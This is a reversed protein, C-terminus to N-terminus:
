QHPMHTFQLQPAFAAAGPPAANLPPVAFAGATMMMAAAAAANPNMAAAPHHVQTHPVNTPPLAFGFAAAAPNQMAAFPTTAFMKREWDVKQELSHPGFAHKYVDSVSRPSVDARLLSKFGASPPAEMPIGGGSISVGGAAHANPMTNMMTPAIAVPVVGMPGAHQPTMQFTPQAMMAGAPHMPHQPQQQSQGPHHHHHQQQMHQPALPQQPVFPGLHQPQQQPVIATPPLGMQAGVSVPMAQVTTPSTSSPSTSAGGRSGLSDFIEQGKRQGPAVWASANMFSRMDKKASTAGSTAAGPSTGSVGSAAASQTTGGASVGAAMTMATATSTTVNATMVNGSVATGILESATSPPGGEKRQLKVKEDLETSSKRLKATDESRNAPNPVAAAGNKSPDLSYPQFSKKPEAGSALNLGSLRELSARGQKPSSSQPQTTTTGTAPPTATDSRKNAIAIGPPTGNNQQAGNPQANAIAKERLAPVIYSGKAKATNLVMSYRDEEDMGGDDQVIQGREEAIHVDETVGSEIEAALRTAESIKAKYVASSRDLSTTYLDERYPTAATNLMGANAEFQNWSGQDHSRESLSFNLHTHDEAVQFQALQREANVVSTASIETDTQFGRTARKPLQYRLSVFDNADVVLMAEPAQISVSEEGDVVKSAMRLVCIYKTHSEKVHELAASAALHSISRAGHFVGCWREGNKLTVTVM